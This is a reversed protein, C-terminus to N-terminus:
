TCKLAPSPTLGHARAATVCEYYLAYTRESSKSKGSTALSQWRWGTNGAQKVYVIKCTQMTRKYAATTARGGAAAFHHFTGRRWARFPSLPSAM